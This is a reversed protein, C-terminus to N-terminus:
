AQRELRGLRDGRAAELDPGRSRAGADPWLGSLRRPEPHRGAAAAPGSEGIPSPLAISRKWGTRHAESDPALAFRGAAPPMSSRAPREAPREGRRAAIRSLLPLLRSRDSINYDFLVTRKEGFDFHRIMEVDECTWSGYRDKSCWSFANNFFELNATFDPGERVERRPITPNAGGILPCRLHWSNNFVFWPSIAHSGFRRRLTQSRLQAEARPGDHPRVRGTHGASERFERHQRLLVLLRRWRHRVLVM